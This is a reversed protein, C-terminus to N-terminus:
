NDGHEANSLAENWPSIGQQLRGHEFSKIESILIHGPSIYCTYQDVSVHFERINEGNRFLISPTIIAMQGMDAASIHSSDPFSSTKEIPKIDISNLKGRPIHVLNAKNIRMRLKWLDTFISVRSLAQAL